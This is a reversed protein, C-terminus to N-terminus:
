VAALRRELLRRDSENMPLELARELASRCGPADGLERLLEARTAWYLHWQELPQEDLLDLAHRPGFVKFEAVARNVHVVANPQARELLRYLDVVQNWDTGADDPALGHLTAIAAQIRYPGIPPRRLSDEVLTAAEAIAAHDWLSRDQDALLM